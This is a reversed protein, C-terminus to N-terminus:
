ALALVADELAKKKAKINPIIRATVPRSKEEGRMINSPDV